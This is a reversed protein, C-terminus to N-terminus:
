KSRSAAGGEAARRQGEPKGVPEDRSMSASGDAVV